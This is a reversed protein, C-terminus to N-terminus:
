FPKGRNWRMSSRLRRRHRTGPSLTSAHSPIQQAQKKPFGLFDETFLLARRFRIGEFFSASMSVVRVQGGALNNLESEGGFDLARDEDGKM